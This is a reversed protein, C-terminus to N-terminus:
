RSTAEGQWMLGRRGWTLGWTVDEPDIGLGVLAPCEVALANTPVNCRFFQPPSVRVGREGEEPGTWSGTSCATYQNHSSPHCWSSGQHQEVGASEPGSEPPRAERVSPRLTLLGM